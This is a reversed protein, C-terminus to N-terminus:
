SVGERGTQAQLNDALEAASSRERAIREVDPRNLLISQGHEVVPSIRGEGIWRRITVRHVGVIRAAQSLNVLDMGLMM